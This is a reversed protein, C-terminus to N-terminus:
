GLFAFAMFLVDDMEILQFKINSQYTAACLTIKPGGKKKTVAVEEDKDDAIVRRWTLLPQTMENIGPLSGDGAGIETM